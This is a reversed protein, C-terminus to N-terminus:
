NITSHSESTRCLTATIRAGKLHRRKKAAARKLATDSYDGNFYRTFRM